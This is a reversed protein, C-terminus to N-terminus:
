AGGAVSQPVYRLGHGDKSGPVAISRTKLSVSRGSATFPRLRERQSELIIMM